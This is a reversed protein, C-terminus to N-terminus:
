KYIIINLIIEYKGTRITYKLERIKYKRIKIECKITKIGDHEDNNYKKPVNNDTATQCLDM